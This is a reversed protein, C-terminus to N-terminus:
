VRIRSELKNIDIDNRKVCHNGQLVVCQSFYCTVGNVSFILLKKPAFVYSQFHKHLGWIPSSPCLYFFRCFDLSTVGVLFKCSNSQCRSYPELYDKINAKFMWLNFVLFIWYVVLFIGNQLQRICSTETAVSVQLQFNVWNGSVLQLFITTANSLGYIVLVYPQTIHNWGGM